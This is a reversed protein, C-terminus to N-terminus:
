QANNFPFPCVIRCDFPPICMFPFWNAHSRPRSRAHLYHWEIHACVRCMCQAPWHSSSGSENNKNGDFLLDRSPSVIEEECEVHRQISPTALRFNFWQYKGKLEAEKRVLADQISDLMKGSRQYVCDWPQANVACTLVNVYSLIEAFSFFLPCFIVNFRPSFCKKTKNQGKCRCQHLSVALWIFLKSKSAFVHIQFCYDCGIYWKRRLFKRWAAPDSRHSLLTWPNGM